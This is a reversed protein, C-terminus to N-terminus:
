NGKNHHDNIFQAPSKPLVFPVRSWRNTGKIPVFMVECDDENSLVARRDFGTAEYKKWFGDDSDAVSPDSELTGYLVGWATYEKITIYIMDDTILDGNAEELRRKLRRNEKDKKALAYRLQMIETAMVRDSPTEFEYYLGGVKIWTVFAQSGLRNEPNSMEKM